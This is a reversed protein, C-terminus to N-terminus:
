RRKLKRNHLQEIAQDIVAGLSPAELADKLEQVREETIPLILYGRVKKKQEPPLKPPGLRRPVKGGNDIFRQYRAFARRIEHETPADREAHIDRIHRLYTRLTTARDPWCGRDDKAWAALDRLHADNEHHALFQNFNPVLASKGRKKLHLM